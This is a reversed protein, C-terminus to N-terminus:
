TSLDGIKKLFIKKKYAIGAESEKSPNRWLNQDCDLIGGAIEQGFNNPVLTEDEIVHAYGGDTGFEVSFYPMGSPVSRRLGKKSTDVLRKNSAWDVDCEQIAKKFYAPALACDDKSIPICDVHTHRRRKLGKAMEMFVVDKDDESFIKTLKQKIEILEEWFDEDGIVTNVLHQMPVVHCQNSAMSKVPPIKVYLTRGIHVIGDKKCSENDFCMYCSELRKHEKLNEALIKQSDKKDTNKHTAINSEYMDDLTWNERDQAMKGLKTAYKMFMNECSEKGIAKEEKLLDKLEKNHDDAFYSEREGETNHTAHMKEKRKRGTRSTDSPQSTNVSAPRVNGKSDTQTLIITEEKKKKSTAKAKMLKMEGLRKKLKEVKDNNGMIEAKVIKASMNNLDDETVIVDPVAAVPEKIPEPAELVVTSREARAKKNQNEGKDAESGENSSESNARHDRSSRKDPTRSRHHRQPLPHRQKTSSGPSQDRKRHQPSRSRSRKDRHRLQELSRSRKDRSSHHNSRDPSRHTRRDHPNKFSSRRENGKNQSSRQHLKIRAKMAELKNKNYTKQDNSVEPDKNQVEESVTKIVHLGPISYDITVTEAEKEKEKAAKQEKTINNNQLDGFFSAEGLSMWDDRSANSTDQTTKLNDPLAPGCKEPLPPGYNEPLMPGCKTKKKPENKTVPAIKEEKDSDDTSDHHHKKKSKKKHKKDKGM